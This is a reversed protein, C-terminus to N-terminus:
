SGPFGGSTINATVCSKDLLIPAVSSLDNGQHCLFGITSDHRNSRLKMQHCLPVNAMGM